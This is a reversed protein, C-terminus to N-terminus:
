GDEPFLVQLLVIQRERLDTWFPVGFGCCEPSMLAVNLQSFSAKERELQYGVSRM